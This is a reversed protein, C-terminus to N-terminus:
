DGRLAGGIALLSLGAIVVFPAGINVKEEPQVLTTYAFSAAGATAVLGGLVMMALLLRKDMANSPRPGSASITLTRAM